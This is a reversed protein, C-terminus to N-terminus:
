ADRRPRGDFSFIRVGRDMLDALFARPEVVAALGTAGPPFRGAVTWAASTAAVAAAGVATRETVGMVSVEHTGARRGRLEVRVAGTRGEPHPPRLM